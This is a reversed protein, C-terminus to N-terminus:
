ALLEESEGCCPAPESFPLASPQLVTQPLM